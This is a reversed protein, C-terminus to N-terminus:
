GDMWGATQGNAQGDTQGDMHLNGQYRSSNLSTKFLSQSAFFSIVYLGTRFIPGMVTPPRRSSTSYSGLKRPPELSLPPPFLWCVSSHTAPCATCNLYVTYLWTLCLNRPCDLTNTKRPFDCEAKAFIFYLNSLSICLDCVHYKICKWCVSCMLSKQILFYAM